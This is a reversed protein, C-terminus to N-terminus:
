LPAQLKRPCRPRLSVFNSKCTHHTHTPHATKSAIDVPRDTSLSAGSLVICFSAQGKSPHLTASGMASGNEKIAHEPHTFIRDHM